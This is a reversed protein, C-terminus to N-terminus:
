FEEFKKRPVRERCPNLAHKPGFHYRYSGPTRSTALLSLRGTRYAPEAAAWFDIKISPTEAGVM